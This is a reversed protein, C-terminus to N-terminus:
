AAGRAGWAARARVGVQEVGEASTQRSTRRNEGAPAAVGVAQAAAGVAAGRAAETAGKAALAEWAVVVAEAAERVAGMAVEAATVVQAARAVADVEAELLIVAAVGAGTAVVRVGRAEELDAVVVLDVSAVMAARAAM